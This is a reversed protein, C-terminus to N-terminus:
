KNSWYYLTVGDSSFTNENWDHHSHPLFDDEYDDGYNILSFAGRSLSSFGDKNTSIYMNRKHIKVTLRKEAKWRDVFESYLASSRNIHQESYIKVKLIKEIDKPSLQTECYNTCVINFNYDFNCFEQEFKDTSKFKVPLYLIENKKLEAAIMFLESLYKYGSGNGWIILLGKNDHGASINPNVVQPTLLNIEQGGHVKIIKKTIEM